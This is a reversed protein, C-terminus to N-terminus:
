DLIVVVDSVLKIAQKSTKLIHKIEKRTEKTLDKNNKLRKMRDITKELNRYLNYSDDSLGLADDVVSSQIRSDFRIKSIDSNTNKM